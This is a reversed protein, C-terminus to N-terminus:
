LSNRSLLDKVYNIPIAYEVDNADTVGWSVVGIVTGYWDMLAAGSSGSSIPAAYQIIKTEENLPRVASIIGVSFTGLNKQPNSIIYIPQGVFIDDSNGLQLHPLNLPEASELIALDLDPNTESITVFHRESSDLVSWVSLRDHTEMRDVLHYVTVIIHTDVVFGTGRFVTYDGRHQYLVVTSKVGIEAIRNFQTGDAIRNFQTGDVFPYGRLQPEAVSIREGEDGCGLVVFILSVVCLVSKM